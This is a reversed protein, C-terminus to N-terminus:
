YGSGEPAAGAGVEGQLGGSAKQGSQRGLENLLLELDFKAADNGLDLRVADRFSELALQRLRQASKADLGADELYLLGALSAAASRLGTGGGEHVLRVLEAEAEAHLELVRTPATGQARSAAVLAMAERLTRDDGSGLLSEAARVHLAGGGGDEAAFVGNALLALAAALVLLAASLVIRARTM